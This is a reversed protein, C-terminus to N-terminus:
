KKENQHYIKTIEGDRGQIFNMRFKKGIEIIEESPNDIILTVGLSIINDILQEMYEKFISKCLLYYYGNNVYIYGTYKDATFGIPEANEDGLCITYEKNM